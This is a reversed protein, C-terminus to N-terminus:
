VAFCKQYLPQSLKEYNDFLSGWYYGFSIDGLATKMLIQSYSNWKSHYCLNILILNRLYIFLARELSLKQMRHEQLCEIQKSM